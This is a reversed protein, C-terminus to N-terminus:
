PGCTNAMRFPRPMTGIVIRVSEIRVPPGGVGFLRIVTPQNRGDGKSKPLFPAGRAASKGLIAGQAHFCDTSKASIPRLAAKFGSFILPFPFHPLVVVFPRVEYSM